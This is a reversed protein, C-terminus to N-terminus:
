LGKMMNRVQIFRALFFFVLFVIILVVVDLAPNFVSIGTFGAHFLDVLYTLPSLYSLAKAWGTLEGLPIFIGSIFIQPFRLLSSLMMINPPTNSAPASLLSGFGAFTLTGLVFAALFFGAHTITLHLFGMSVMWVISTIVCGFLAGALIDGIIICEITVPYSLLREYTRDRKEWPTILPGVSSASFFLTMALFGPFFLTIDFQRGVFFALFMFLPFLLGFILVPPKNYYIRINKEAIVSISRAYSSWM